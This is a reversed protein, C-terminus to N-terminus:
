ERLIVELIVTRAVPKGSDDLAAKWLSNQVYAKMQETLRGQLDSRDKPKPLFEVEGIIAAKGVEDVLVRARLSKGALQFNPVLGGFAKRSLLTPGTPVVVNISGGDITIRGEQVPHLPVTETPEQSASPETQTMKLPEESTAVRPPIPIPSRHHTSPTVEPRVPTPKPDETGPQPTPPEVRPRSSPQPVLLGRANPQSSIGSTPRVKPPETPSVPPISRATWHLLALGAAVGFATIVLYSLLRQPSRNKLFNEARAEIERLPEFYFQAMSTTSSGISDWGHAFAAFFYRAALLVDGIFVGGGLIVLCLATPSKLGHKEFFDLSGEFLCAALAILILLCASFVVHKAVLWVDPEASHHAPGSAMEPPSASGEGLNDSM